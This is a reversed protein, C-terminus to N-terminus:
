GQAEWVRSRLETLYTDLDDLDLANVDALLAAGQGSTDLDRVSLGFFLAVIRMQRNWAAGMEVWVWSRKMSWPTFLAVFERSRSLEEHILAKVDREGKSINAEDLFATAGVGAIEKAIQRAIWQDHSGHSM